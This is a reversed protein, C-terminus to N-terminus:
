ELDGDNLTDIAKLKSDIARKVKEEITNAALVFIQVAKTGGDRHIRGLAQKVLVSNYHPCLYAIRPREKLVDHMDIGTGGADITSVCCFVLNQQFAMHNAKREEASQGGFIKAHEIGRRKLEDCVQILTERFCVFVVASKGEEITEEALDCLLPVKYLETRQRARLKEVMENAGPELLKAELEAYIDNVEDTYDKNLDYAKAEIVCEPFGPIDDLTCRVMLDKMKDHLKAMHQKAAPGKPFDLGTHFPSNYCGHARCFSYFSTPNFQHLGLLYGTARLKLPSDAVTASVLITKVGYAKLLAMMKTTKTLPGSAGKHVEDIVVVTGDPLKWSKGDWEKSKGTMLREWNIVNVIRSKEIDFAELVRHWNSVVAKPCIILVPAPTLDKLHQTTIYTKGAGTPLANLVTKKEDLISKQRQYLPEQWSHLKMM